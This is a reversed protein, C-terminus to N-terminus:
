KHSLNIVKSDVRLGLYSGGEGVKAEGEGVRAVGEGM